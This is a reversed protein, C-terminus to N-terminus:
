RNCGSFDRGRFVPQFRAVLHFVQETVQGLGDGIGLMHRFLAVELQGEACQPQRLEGEGGSASSEINKTCLGLCPQHPPVIHYCFRHPTLNLM